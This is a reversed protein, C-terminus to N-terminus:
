KEKLKNLVTKTIFIKAAEQICKGIAMVIEPKSSVFVFDTNDNDTKLTIKGQENIEADIICNGSQIEYVTYIKKHSM